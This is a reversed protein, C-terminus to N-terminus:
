AGREEDVALTFTKASEENSESLARGPAERQAQSQRQGQQQSAHQERSSDSVHVSVDGNQRHILDQRLSDGIGHLQRAVEANSARLHVQINGAERQIVIEITGMSPPDLRIVAHESRQTIQLQLRDGLAVELASRQTTLSQAPQQASVPALVGPQQNFGEVLAQALGANTLSALQTVPLTSQSETLTTGKTALSFAPTNITLAGLASTEPVAALVNLLTQERPGAAQTPQSVPAVPLQSQLQPQRAFNTSRQAYELPVTVPQTFTILSPFTALTDTTAADETTEESQEVLAEDFNPQDAVRPALNLTALADAALSQRLQEGFRIPTVPLLAPMQVGPAQGVPLLPLGPQAGTVPADTSVLAAGFAIGTM